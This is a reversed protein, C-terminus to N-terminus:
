AFHHISEDFFVVLNITWSINFTRSRFIIFHLLSQIAWFKFYSQFNSWPKFVLYKITKCNIVLIITFYCNWFISCKILVKSYHSWEQYEVNSLTIKRYIIENFINEKGLHYRSYKPASHFHFVKLIQWQM